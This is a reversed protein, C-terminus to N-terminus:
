SRARVASLLVGHRTQVKFRMHAYRDAGDSFFQFTFKTAAPDLTALFDAAVNKDHTPGAISSAEVTTDM